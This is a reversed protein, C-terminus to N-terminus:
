SMSMDKLTHTHPPGPPSVTRGVVANAKTKLYKLYKVGREKQNYMAPVM